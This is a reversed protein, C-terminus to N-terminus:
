YKTITPRRWTRGPKQSSRRTLPPRDCNAERVSGSSPSFPKGPEGTSDSAYLGYCLGTDAEKVFVSSFASNTSAPRVWAELTMATTLDLSASPDVTIWQGGDFAAAGGHKGSASWMEESLTGDKFNGSVDLAHLGSGEDFDYAAVLGATGLAQRSSAVAVTKAPEMPKDGTRSCGVGCTSLITMWVLLRVFSGVAQDM